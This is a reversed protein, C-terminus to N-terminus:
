NPSALEGLFLDADQAVSAALRWSKSEKTLSTTALTRSVSTSDDSDNGTFTMLAVEDVREVDANACEIGELEVCARGTGARGEDETAAKSGKSASSTALCTSPSPCDVWSVCTTLSADPMQCVM